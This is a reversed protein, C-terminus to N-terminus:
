GRMLAATNTTAAPTIKQGWIELMNPLSAHDMKCGKGERPTDANGRGELATDLENKGAQM